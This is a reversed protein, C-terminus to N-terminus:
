IRKGKRAKGKESRGGKPPFRKTSEDNEENDSSDSKKKAEHKTWVEMAEVKEKLSLVAALLAQTSTADKTQTKQSPPGNVQHVKSKGV